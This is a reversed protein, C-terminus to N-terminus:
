SDLLSGRNSILESVFAVAKRSQLEWAEYRVLADNNDHDFPMRKQQMRARAVNDEAHSLDAKVVKLIRELSPRDRM